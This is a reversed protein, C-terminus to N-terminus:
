PLTSIDGEQCLLFTAKQRPREPTCTLRSAGTFRLRARSALLGILSYGTRFEDRVILCPASRGDRRQGLSAPRGVPPPVAAEPKSPKSKPKTKPGCRVSLNRGAQFFAYRPAETHIFCSGLATAASPITAFEGKVFSDGPKGAPRASLKGTCPSSQRRPWKKAKLAFRRTSLGVLTRGAV